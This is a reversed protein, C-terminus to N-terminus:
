RRKARAVIEVAYVVMFSWVIRMSFGSLAAVVTLVLVERPISL